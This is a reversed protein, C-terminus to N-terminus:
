PNVLTAIIGVLLVMVIVALSLNVIGKSADKATNKSVGRKPSRSFDDRTALFPDPASKSEGRLVKVVNKRDRRSSKDYKKEVIHVEQNRGTAMAKEAARVATQYDPCSEIEMQSGTLRLAVISYSKSTIVSSM